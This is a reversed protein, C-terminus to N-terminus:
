TFPAYARINVAVKAGGIRRALEGADDAGRESCLQVAGLAKAREHAASGEFVAPFDDPVVILADSM